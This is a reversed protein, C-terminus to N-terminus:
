DVEWPENNYGGRARTAGKGALPVGFDDEEWTGQEFNDGSDSYDWQCIIEEGNEGYGSVTGRLAGNAIKFAIRLMLSILQVPPGLM